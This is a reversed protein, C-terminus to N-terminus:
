NRVLSFAKWAFFCALLVELLWAGLFFAPHKRYSVTFWMSVCTRGRVLDVVAFGIFVMALFLSSGFDHKDFPPHM